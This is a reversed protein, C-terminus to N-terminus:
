IVSPFYNVRRLINERIQLLFSIQLPYNNNKTQKNKQWKANIGREETVPVWNIESVCAQHNELAPHKLAVDKKESTHQMHGSRARNNISM